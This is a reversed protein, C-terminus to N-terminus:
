GQYRAIRLTLIEVLSNGVREEVDVDSVTIVDVLKPTLMTM